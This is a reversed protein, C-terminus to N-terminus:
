PFNFAPRFLDAPSVTSSTSGVSRRELGLEGLKSILAMSVGVQKTASQFTAGNRVLALFNLVKLELSQNGQSHGLLSRSKAVQLGREIEELGAQRLGGVTIADTQRSNADPYIAVTHYQPAGTGYAVRFQYLKREGGPMQTIVSLLTSATRPLNPFKLQHIRRLHIVTAASNSCNKEARESSMVCMPGDFDLTIQSPDDLWVKRVIEGTPIFSLNTGAGSWVTITQIAGNLGQAQSSFITQVPSAVLSQVRAMEAPLIAASVVLSCSALFQLKM